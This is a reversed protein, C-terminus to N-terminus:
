NWDKDAWYQRHERKKGEERIEDKEQQSLEFDFVGNIYEKLREEKGSTTVVIHQQQFPQLAWRLLVQSPSKNHKKAIKNVVEDVPGDKSYILSSLPSYVEIRIDHKYCSEIISPQQLYPNFEIQNVVPKVLGLALIEEIDKARFNSIGVSKAKGSKYVKDMEKWSDSVPVGFFPSHILYLDVYDLQLRSLSADIAGQIDKIGKSVKTTVFLKERAVGSEKIAIGVERENAYGEATDIHHFGLSIAKKVAEVVKQDIQNVDGSHKYWATGSGYGLLPITIGKSNNLAITKIQEAM